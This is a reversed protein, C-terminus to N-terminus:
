FFDRPVRWTTVSAKHICLKTHALNEPEDGSYVCMGVCFFGAAFRSM